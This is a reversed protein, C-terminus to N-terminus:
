KVDKNMAELELGELIWLAKFMMPGVHIYNINAVAQIGKYDFGTVGNFGYIRQSRSLNYLRLVERTQHMLHPPNYDCETCDFDMRVAKQM